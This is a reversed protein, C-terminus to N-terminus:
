LEQPAAVRHPLKRLRTADGAVHGGFV